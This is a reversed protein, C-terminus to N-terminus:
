GTMIFNYWMQQIVDRIKKYEESVNVDLPNMVQRADFVTVSQACHNAGRVNTHPVVPTDEDVFSFQYLYIQDHGSEVLSKVSRLTSYAFLVDTFYDVYQLISEDTIYKDGFYYEKIAKAVEEKEEDSDFQLDAPLFESFKENLKQKWISFNDIQLLGEMDAFGFLMPVKRYDGKEIINLPADDIFIEVGTEREVCPVFDFTSNTNQFNITGKFFENVPVNKLFKELAYIDDIDNFGLSKAYNTAIDVPDIQMAIVGTSAGSEPIVKNFLGKTTKSLMLLDVSISGASGGAITVDDPNGGFSAINKKVWRLLAVQDKLGANGPTSKTGLCLFGNIGLRYNFTVAIIKKDKIFNKPPIMDGYGIQFAGGHVYVIVSLNREDTDPVYVNAILCDEQMAKNKVFYSDVQPCVIHKDAELPDIWVPPPLPAQM